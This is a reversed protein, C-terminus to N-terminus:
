GHAGGELRSLRTLKSSGADMTRDSLTPELWRPAIVRVDLSKAQERGLDRLRRRRPGDRLIQDLAEAFATEDGPPVLVGCTGNATIEAPGYDCDFTVVPCGCAMAEALVNGWGEFRSTLLFAEARAMWAFPNAVRGVFRVRNAIGLERALAECEARGPGDGAVVLTHEQDALRSFIRLMRPFDKQPVFRGAAFVYKGSIEHLEPVDEAAQAVIEALDLPNHITAVRGAPMGLQDVLYDRVGASVAVIREARAYALRMFVRFIWHFRAPNNHVSLTLRSAHGTALAAFLLPMNATEMFGILLDPNTKRIV